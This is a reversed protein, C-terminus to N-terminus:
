GNGDDGEMRGPGEPPSGARDTAAGAISLLICISFFGVLGVIFLFGNM